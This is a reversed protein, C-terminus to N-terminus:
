FSMTDLSSCASANALDKVPKNRNNDLVIIGLEQLRHLVEPSICGKGGCSERIILYHKQIESSQDSEGKALAQASRILWNGFYEYDDHISSLPPDSFAAERSNNCGIVRFDEPASLGLKRMATMFRLAYLDDHCIVALDGKTISWKRALEDMENVGAGVLGCINDLGNRYIFNSYSSLRQQMISDSISDPGLLAISRSGLLHFYTCLAITQSITGKGFIGPKEFCNKELGPILVPISVPLPSNRVFKAVDGTSDVPFWPIILASCGDAALHEAEKIASSGYETIYSFCLKLSKEDAADLSKRIVEMAYEDSRFHILMGIKFLSTKNAPSLDLEPEAKIETKFTGSGVRRTIMGNKVFPDMAKRVTLANCGFRRAFERDSPLKGGVPSQSLFEKIERSIEQYKLQKSHAIM